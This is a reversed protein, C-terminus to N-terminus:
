ARVTVMPRRAVAARRAAHFRSLYGLCLGLGVAHWIHLEEFTTLYLVLFVNLPVLLLTASRRDLSRRQAFVLANPVLLWVVAITLGLVGGSGLISLLLNLSSVPYDSDLVEALKYSLNGVGSGFLLNDFILQLNEYVYGRSTELLGLSGLHQIREIFQNPFELRMALWALVAAAAGLVLLAPLCRRLGYVVLSSLLLSILLAAFVGLSYSLYIAAAIVLGCTARRNKLALFLPLVLSMALFSPERFTGLARNTEDGVEFTFVIAQDLGGTGLRNRPLDGLGLAHMVFVVIALVAVLYGIDVLRREFSLAFEGRCTHIAVYSVVVLFAALNFFRIAVYSAPVINLDNLATTAALLLALVIMGLILGPYPMLRPGVSAAMCMLIGIWPMPVGALVFADLQCLMYGAFFLTNRM